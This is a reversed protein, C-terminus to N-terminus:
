GFLDARWYILGAVQLALLVVYLWQFLPKRTKHRLIKMALLSAPATGAAAALHLALEPVRWGGRKAARKDFAWLLPVSANGAACWALVAHLDFRQGLWWAAAGAIGAFVALFWLTPHSKLGM